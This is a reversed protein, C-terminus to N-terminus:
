NLEDLTLRYSPLFVEMFYKLEPVEMEELQNRITVEAKEFERNGAKLEELCKLYACLKDAAKVVKWHEDDAPNKQLILDAYDPQLEPPLMNFLREKAIEEIGSYASKIEPNFYKIPTALDGTIVESIEHFAALVMVREPDLTGGFLRNRIIALAHAIVAVELSHEQINETRTNRMLGWRRIYKMRSLYAFFHTRKM